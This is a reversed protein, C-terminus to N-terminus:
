NMVMWLRFGDDLGAARSAELARSHDDAAFLDTQSM